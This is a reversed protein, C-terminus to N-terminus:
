LSHARLPGIPSIEASATEVEPSPVEGHSEVRLWLYNGAASDLAPPNVGPGYHETFIPTSPLSQADSAYVGVHVPGGEEALALQLRRLAFEMSAETGPIPGVVFHGHIPHGDDTESEPDMARVHGDRCGLMVVREEPTDGAGMWVSSVQHSRAGFQFKWWSLPTEGEVKRQVFYGIPKSVMDMIDLPILFVLIGGLEESWELQTRYQKFDIEQLEDHIAGLGLPTPGGFPVSDAQPGMMYLGGRDSMFYLVGRADRCWSKGFAMGIERSMAYIGGGGAPNGILRYIAGECGFLLIQDNLPVLANIPEPFKGEFTTSNGSVSRRESGDAPSEDFDRYDDRASMKYNHPETPWRAFVLRNQWVCVLQSGPDPGEGKEALFPELRNAAIDLVRINKGDVIFMEGFAYAGFISASEYISGSEDVPVIFPSTDDFTVVRGGAVVVLRSARTSVRGSPTRSVVRTKRATAGDADFIFEPGLDAGAGYLPSVLPFAFPYPIAVARESIFDGGMSTRVFRGDPLARALARASDVGMRVARPSTLIAGWEAASGIQSFGGDTTFEYGRDYLKVLSPGSAALPAGVTYIADDEDDITVGYGIGGNGIDSETAVYVPQASATHKIVQAESSQLKGLVLLPFDASGGGAPPANEYTHGVLFSGGGVKHAMYGEVKEITTSDVGITPGIVVLAEHLKVGTQSPMSTGDVTGHVQLHRIIWRDNPGDILVIRHYRATTPTALTFRHWNTFSGTEIGFEESTAITSFDSVAATEYRFRSAANGEKSTSQISFGGVVPPSGSLDFEFSDLTEVFLLLDQWRWDDSRDYVPTGDFDVTGGILTRPQAYTAGNSVFAAGPQFAGVAITGVSSGNVSIDLDGTGVPSYDFRILAITDYGLPASSLSATGVYATGAYFDLDGNDVDIRISDASPGGYQTLVRRAGNPANPIQLLLFTSWSYSGTVAPFLLGREFTSISAGLPGESALMGGPQLEFAPAVGFGDAKWTVQQYAYPWERAERTHEDNTVGYQSEIRRVDPVTGVRAGDAWVSGDPKAQAADLWVHVTDDWDAIERPTWSVLPLDFAPNGRTEDRPAVVISDGFRNLALDWAGLATRGSAYTEPQGSGLAGVLSLTTTPTLGDDLSDELCALTGSRVRFAVLRGLLGHEWAVELRGGEQLPQVIRYVASARGDFLATGAGAIYAAGAEDVEIHPILSFSSPMQGPVYAVLEMTAPDVISVRATEDLAYLRGDPGMTMAVIPARLALSEEVLAAVRAFDDTPRFYQAVAGFRVPAPVGFVGGRVPEATVARTGARRSMRARGTRPSRSVFNLADVTTAPQQKTRASGLSIGGIPMRIPSHKM